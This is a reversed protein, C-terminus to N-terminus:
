YILNWAGQRLGEIESLSKSVKAQRMIGIMAKFEDFFKQALSIKGDNSGSDPHIGKVKPNYYEKKFLSVIEGNSLTKDMVWSDILNNNVDFYSRYDRYGDQENEIVEESKKFEMIEVLKQRKSELEEIQSDISDNLKAYEEVFNDFSLSNLSTLDIEGPYKYVIVVSKQRDGKQAICLEVDQKVDATFYYNVIKKGEKIKVYDVNELLDLKKIAYRVLKQEKDVIEKIHELSHRSM